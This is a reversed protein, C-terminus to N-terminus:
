DNTVEVLGDTTTIEMRYTLVGSEADWQATFSDISVVFDYGDVTTRVYHKWLDLDQVSSFVTDLYPIGAEVNLQLEGTLTRVADGIIHAYAEKGSAFEIYDNGDPATYVGIDHAGFRQSFATM